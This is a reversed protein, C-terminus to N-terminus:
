KCSERIQFIRVLINRYSWFQEIFIFNKDFVNVHTAISIRNNHKNGFNQDFLALNQEFFFPFGVLKLRNRCKKLSNEASHEVFYPFNQSERIEFIGWNQGLYPFNERIQTGKYPSCVTDSKFDTGTPHTAFNKLPKVCFQSSSNIHSLNSSLPGPNHRIKHNRVLEIPVSSKM